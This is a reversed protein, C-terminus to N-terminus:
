NLFYHIGFTIIHAGGWAYLGAVADDLMIGTGGSSREFIRAPYPKTIDFIRFLIFASIIYTIDGQYTFSALAIWQGLVEDIVVISPDHKGSRLEIIDSAVAGIVLTISIIALLLGTHHLSPIFYYLAAAAVSGVTGSAIPSFGLFGFSAIFLVPIPIGTYSGPPSWLRSRAKALEQNPM